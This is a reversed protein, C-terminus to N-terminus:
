SVFGQLAHYGPLVFAELSTDVVKGNGDNVCEKINTNTTSDYKTDSKDDSCEFQAELGLNHAFPNYLRKSWFWGAKLKHDNMAEGKRRVQYCHLTSM